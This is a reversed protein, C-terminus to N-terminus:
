LSADHWYALIYLTAWPGGTKLTILARSGGTRLELAWVEAAYLAIGCVL